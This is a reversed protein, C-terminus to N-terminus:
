VRSSSGNAMEVKGGQAKVEVAMIILITMELYLYTTLKTKNHLKRTKPFRMMTSDHYSGCSKGLM